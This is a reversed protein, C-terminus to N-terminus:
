LLGCNHDQIVIVFCDVAYASYLTEQVRLKMKKLAMNELTLEKLM